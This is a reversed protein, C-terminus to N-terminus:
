ATASRPELEEDDGATEPLYRELIERDMREFTTPKTGTNSFSFRCAYIDLLRDGSRAAPPWEIDVANEALYKGIESTGTGSFGFLMIDLNSTVPQYDIIIFGADKKAGHEDEDFGLHKWRGRKDRWLLGPKADSAPDEASHHIFLRPVFDTPRPVIGIPMRNNNPSFPDLRFIEGLRLVTLLQVKCSGIFVRTRPRESSNDALIAQAFQLDSENPPQMNDEPVRYPVLQIDPQEGSDLDKFEDVVSRDRASTMHEDGPHGPLLISGLYYTVLSRKFVAPFTEWIFMGKILDDPNLQDPFTLCLYEALKSLKTLEVSTVNHSGRLYKSLTARNIGTETSAPLIFGHGLEVGRTKLYAELNLKIM